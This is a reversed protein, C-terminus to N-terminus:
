GARRPGHRQGRAQKGLCRRGGLWPRVTACLGAISWCTGRGGAEASQALIGPNGKGQGTLPSQGPPGVRQSRPTVKGWPAWCAQLMRSPSPAPDSECANSRHPTRRCASAWLRCPRAYLPWARQSWKLGAWIGASRCRWPAGGPWSRDATRDPTGPPERESLDDMVVMDAMPVKARHRM